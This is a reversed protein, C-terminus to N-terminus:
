GLRKKDPHFHIYDKQVGDWKVFRLCSVFSITKMASEIMLVESAASPNLKLGSSLFPFYESYNRSMRYPM